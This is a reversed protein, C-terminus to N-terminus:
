GLGAKRRSYRMQYVATGSAVQATVTGAEPRLGFWRSVTGGFGTWNAGSDPDGAATGGAYYRVLPKDAWIWVQDDAGATVTGIQIYEGTTPYTITVTGWAGTLVHTPYSLYDGASNDFAASVTGPGATGVATTQEVGFTWFPSASEFKLAVGIYQGDPGEVDPSALAADRTYTGGNYVVQVTGRADRAM